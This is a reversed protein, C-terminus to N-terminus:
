AHCPNRIIMLRLVNLKSHLSETIMEAFLLIFARKLKSSICFRNHIFNANTQEHGSHRPDKQRAKIQKATLKPCFRFRLNVKKAM